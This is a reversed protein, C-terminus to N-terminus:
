KKFFGKLAPIGYDFIVCVSGVPIMVFLQLQIFEGFLQVWSLFGGLVLGILTVCLIVTFSFLARRLALRVAEFPPNGAYYVMASTAGLFIGGAVIYFIYLLPVSVVFAFERLSVISFWILFGIICGFLGLFFRQLTYYRIFDINFRDFHVEHDYPNHTIKTIVM